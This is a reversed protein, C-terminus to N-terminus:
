ATAAWRRTGKIWTAVVELVDAPSLYSDTIHLVTGAADTVIAHFGLFDDREIEITLRNM